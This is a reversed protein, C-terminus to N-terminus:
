HEWPDFADSEKAEVKRTDRIFKDIASIPKKDPNEKCFDYVLQLITKEDVENLDVFDTYENLLYINAASLYGQVWYFMLYNPQHNLGEAPKIEPGIRDCGSIGIGRTVTPEALAPTGFSSSAAALTLAVAAGALHRHM